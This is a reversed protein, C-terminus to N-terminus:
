YINITTSFVREAPGTMIIHSDAREIHLTGYELIVDIYSDCKKLMEGIVFSACAGTGCAKTYGVGREYTKIQFTHNDLVKVFNVNTQHQYINNMCIYSELGKKLDNEFNKVFIVSHYTGMFVSSVQYTRRQYKLPYNFMEGVGLFGMADKHFNPEGMDVRVQFQSENLITVKKIGAKTLVEFENTKNINEEYVFRAFCRIGNGCMTGETGDQNYFLMTLPKSRVIILGDAGIGTYRNCLTLALENYDRGLIDQEKVIVFDNGCGHYKAIHIM